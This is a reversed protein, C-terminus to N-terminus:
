FLNDINGTIPFRGVRVKQYKTIHLAHIVESWRVVNFTSLYKRQKVCIARETINFPTELSAKVGFYLFLVTSACRDCTRRM